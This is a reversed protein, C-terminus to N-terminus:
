RRIRTLAFAVLGILVVLAGAILLPTAGSDNSAAAPPAQQTPVAVAV